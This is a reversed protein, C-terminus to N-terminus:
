GGEWPASRKRWACIIRSNRIFFKTVAWNVTAIVYGRVIGVVASPPAPRSRGTAPVVRGDPHRFPLVVENQPGRRGGTLLDTNRDSGAWRPVPTALSRPM